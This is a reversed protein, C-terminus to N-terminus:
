LGTLASKVALTLCIEEELRADICACASSDNLASISVKEFWVLYSRGGVPKILRNIDDIYTPKGALCEQLVVLHLVDVPRVTVWGSDGKSLTVPQGNM